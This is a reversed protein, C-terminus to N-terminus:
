KVMGFLDSQIVLNIRKTQILSGHSHREQAGSKPFSGTLETGVRGLLQFDHHIPFAPRAQDLRPPRSPKTEPSPFGGLNLIQVLYMNKTPPYKGLFIFANLRKTM